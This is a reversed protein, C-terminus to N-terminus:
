RQRGVREPNPCRFWNWQSFHVFKKICNLCFNFRWCFSVAFCLALFSASTPYNIPDELTCTVAFLTGPESGPIRSTCDVILTPKGRQSDQLYNKDPSVSGTSLSVTVNMIRVHTYTASPHTKSSRLWSNKVLNVSLCVSMQQQSYCTHIKTM